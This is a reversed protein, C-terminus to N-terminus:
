RRGREGGGAAEIVQMFNIVRYFDHGLPVARTLYEEDNGRDDDNDDHNPAM